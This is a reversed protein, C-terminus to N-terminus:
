VGGLYEAALLELARWVNKKSIGERSVLKEVARQIVRAADVPVYDTGLVSALPVWSRNPGDVEWGAALDEQHREFVDLVLMMGTASNHVNYAAESKALAEMLRDFDAFRAAFVEDGSMFARATQFVEHLRDVEDPLFMFQVTRFELQAESLGELSVHDLEELVKDDLGAYFKLNVDDIENWLDKLIIPDDKGVLANHSLQIAIQEQTTLLRDTYLVLFEDCGAEHAAELRHNGSLVRYKGAETVMCFPVSSLGGDRKINQVLRGFTEHTMFRANKELFELEDYRVLALKFPQGELEVNLRDVEPQPKGAM